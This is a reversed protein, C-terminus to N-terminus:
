IDHSMFKLFINRQDEILLEFYTQKQVRTYLNYANSNRGWTYFHVGHHNKEM